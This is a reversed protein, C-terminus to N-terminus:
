VGSPLFSRPDLSTLSNSTDDHQSPPQHADIKHASEKNHIPYFPFHIIFFSFSKIQRTTHAHMLVVDDDSPRVDRYALIQHHQINEHTLSLTLTLLLQLEDVPSPPYLCLLTQPAFFVM